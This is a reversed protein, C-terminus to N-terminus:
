EEGEWKRELADLREARRAEVEAALFSAILFALSGFFLLWFALVLDPGHNM